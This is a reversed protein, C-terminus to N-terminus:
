FRGPFTFKIALCLPFFAVLTDSLLLDFEGEGILLVRDGRLFPVIPRQNQQVGHKKQPTDKANTSSSPGAGKAKAQAASPQGPKPAAPGTRHPRAPPGKQKKRPM